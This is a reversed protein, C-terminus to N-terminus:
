GPVGLSIPPPPTLCSYACLPQARRDLDEVSAFGRDYAGPLLTDINWRQLCFRQLASRSARDVSYGRRSLHANVAGAQTLVDQLRTVGPTALIANYLLSLPALGSWRYTRVLARALLRTRSPYREEPGFVTTLQHDKPMREGQPILKRREACQVALRELLDVPHDPPLQRMEAAIAHLVTRYHLEPYDDAYLQAATVLLSVHEEPHQRWRALYGTVPWSRSTPAASNGNRAACLARVADQSKVDWEVLPQRVHRRLIEVAASPFGQDRCTALLMTWSRRSFHTGRAIACLLAEQQGTLAGGVRLHRAVFRVSVMAVTRATWDGSGDHALAVEDDADLLELSYLRYVVGHGVMGFSALEAARLAGMSAAGHVAVGRGLIDLIEKHRVSATHHFVGDIIVVRDGSDLPLRLLDGHAIPPHIVAEPLIRSVADNGLSPGVFVHVSSV